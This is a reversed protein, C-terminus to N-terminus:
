ECYRKGHMHWYKKTHCCSHWSFWPVWVGAEYESSSLFPLTSVWESYTQIARKWHKTSRWAELKAYGVSIIQTSVPMVVNSLKCLITAALSCGMLYSCYAHHFVSSPSLQIVLWNFFVAHKNVVHYDNLSCNFCRFWHGHTLLAIQQSIWTREVMRTIM